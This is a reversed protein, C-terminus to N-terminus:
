QFVLRGWRTRERGKVLSTLWGDLSWGELKGQAWLWWLQGALVWLSACDGYFVDLDVFVFNIDSLRSFDRKESLTQTFDFIVFFVHLLFDVDALLNDLFRQYWSLISYHPRSARKIGSLVGFRTDYLSKFIYCRFLKKILDFLLPEM